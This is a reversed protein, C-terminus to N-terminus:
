AATQLRAGPGESKLACTRGSPATRTLDDELDKLRHSLKTIAGKVASRKKKLNALVKDPDVYGPTASGKGFETSPFLDPVM